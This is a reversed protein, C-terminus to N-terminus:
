RVMNLKIIAKRLFYCMSMLDIEVSAFRAEAGALPMRTHSRAKCSKEKGESTAQPYYNGNDKVTSNLNCCSTPTQVCYVYMCMWCDKYM